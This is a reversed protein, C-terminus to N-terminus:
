CGGMRTIVPVLRSWAARLSRLKSSGTTWGNSSIGYVFRSSPWSASVLLTSAKLTNLYMAGLLISTRLLSWAPVRTFSLSTFLCRPARQVLTARGMMMEEPSARVMLGLWIFM